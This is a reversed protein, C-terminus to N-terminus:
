GLTDALMFLWDRPFDKVQAMCFISAFHRSTENPVVKLRFTRSAGMASVQRECQLLFELGDRM